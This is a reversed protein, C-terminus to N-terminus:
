KLIQPGVFQLVDNTIKMCAAPFLTNFFCQFLTWVVSPQAVKTATRATAPGRRNPLVNVNSVSSVSILQATVKEDSGNAGVHSTQENCRRKDYDLCNITDRNLVSKTANIVHPPTV